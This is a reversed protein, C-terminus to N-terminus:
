FVNFCVNLGLVGAVVGVYLLAIILGLVRVCAGLGLVLNCM